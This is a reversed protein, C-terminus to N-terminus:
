RARVTFVAGSRKVTLEPDKALVEAFSDPDNADFVGTYTRQAVEPDTIEIRTGNFRNFDEVIHGLQEKNYSLRQQRWSIAAQGDAIAALVMSGDHRVEVVENPQVRRAQSASAHSSTVEVSGELVTVNVGDSRANVNFQTGVDQIVADPTMVRFPRQPDHRVTFSAEGNQLVVTREHASFSVAVRSSANLAITSGDVLQITLQERTGTSYTQGGNFPKLLLWGGLLAAAVAAAAAWLRRPQEPGRRDSDPAIKPYLTTLNDPTAQKASYPDFRRQPDINSLSDDIALALLLERVHQPSEKLWDLFAEHDADGSPGTLRSVWASAQQAQLEAIQKQFHADRM